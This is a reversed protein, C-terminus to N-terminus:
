FVVVFFVFMCMLLLIERFFIGDRFFVLVLVVIGLVWDLGGDRFVFLFVIGGYFFWDLYFFFSLLKVLVIRLM